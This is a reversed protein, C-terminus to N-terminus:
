TGGFGCAGDKVRVYGGFWEGAAVGFVCGDFPTVFKSKKQFGAVGAWFSFSNSSLFGSPSPVL